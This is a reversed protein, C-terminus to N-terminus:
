QLLELRLLFYINVASAQPIDLLLSLVELCLEGATEECQIIWKDIGQALAPQIWFTEVRWGLNAVQLLLSGAGAANEGWKEM